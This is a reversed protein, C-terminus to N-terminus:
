HYLFATCCTQQRQAGRWGDSRRVKKRQRSKVKKLWDNVGDMDEKKVADKGEKLLVHEECLDRETKIALRLEDSVLPPAMSGAEHICRRLQNLDRVEVADALKENLNAEKELRSRVGKARYITGLKGL